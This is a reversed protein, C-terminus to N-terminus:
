FMELYHLDCLHKYQLLQRLTIKKFYIFERAWECIFRLEKDQRM